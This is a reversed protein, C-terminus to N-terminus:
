RFVRALDLDLSLSAYWTAALSKQDVLPNPDSELFILAGGGARLSPTLRFGGGLVLSQNWFLDSRMRNTADAASSITVGVTLALRRGFSDAETFGVDTNVPRFYINTGVYLAGTQIDGAYLLGLDLSAHNNWPTRGEITYTRSPALDRLFSFRVLYRRRAELPIRVSFAFLNTRRYQNLLNGSLPRRRCGRSPRCSEQAQFSRM